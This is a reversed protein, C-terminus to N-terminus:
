HYKREGNTKYTDSTSPAKSSKALLGKIWAQQADSFPAEITPEATVGNGGEAQDM